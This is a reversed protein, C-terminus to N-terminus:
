EYRLTNVPRTRAIKISHYSIIIYALLVAIVGSFVFVFPDLAAKYAFNSLWGNILLYALPLAMVVSLVILTLMESLILKVMQGLDAGLVKRIGVEKTKLNTTFSALGTLGLFSIFIALYTLFLILRSQKQEEEYLKLLDKNLFTFQFPIDSRAEALISEIDNLAGLLNESDVRVHLYGKNEEQFTIVVPKINEHLSHSNFDRVVGIVKGIYDEEIGPAVMEVRKGISSTEYGILKAAAENLIIPYEEGESDSETFTKGELLEIEMTKFYDTGVMMFDVVQEKLEGKESELKVLTRSMSKGPIASSMSTEKIYLSHALRKRITPIQKITVTDQLPILVIDEKNFGLDKHKVFEMQRYMLLATIVVAVSVTFQFGVLVKRIGLGRDSKVIGKKIAAMAPISSLYIAPYWGSLFAITVTLVLPFWWLDRYHVFDLSLNKGIIANFSTLELVLEVMVLGIGLAMVSLILSEFLIQYIIEKRGSGLVKQMGTEKVRKLSRVTAMNIYNISALVLILLGIAGFAYLYGKNGTARDFQLGSSDFHIKDLPTVDIHYQAALDVSRHMYKAYFDDFRSLLLESEYTRDFRLFTYADIRWLSSLYEEQPMEKNFYSILASFQHHTNAPLDEILGTVTYDFNNTSIIKGIPDEEGFYKKAFSQTIVISQPKSLAEKPDGAVFPFEFVKFFNADALGIGDDGVKIDKRKFLVNEDIHILRTSEDIFNFEKKLLPALAYGAGAYSEETGNVTYISNVRYIENQNPIHKDYTIESQIYMFIILSVSIGLALGLVNLLTYEKNRMLARWAFKFRFKHM